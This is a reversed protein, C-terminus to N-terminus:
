KGIYIESWGTQRWHPENPLLVCSTIVRAKAEKALRFLTKAREESFSSINVILGIAFRLDIASLPDSEINVCPIEGYIHWDNANYSKHDEIYVAPPTQGNIRMNILPLHGRMDTVVSVLSPKM